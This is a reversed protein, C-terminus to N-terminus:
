SRICRRTRRTSRATCRWGASPARAPAKSSASACRGCCGRSASAPSAASCCRRASAAARRSGATPSSISSAPGASSRRWTSASTTAPEARRASAIRCSRSSSAASRAALPALAETTFGRRVLSRTAASIVITGPAAAAQLRLAVDLTTGLVVPEPMNPSASVVALGTHIGVRLAPKTRGGPARHRPPRRSRRGSRPAARVARRADDEHAQPYGFYILVRHGVVNGVTAEHRQAVKQALPRLRM